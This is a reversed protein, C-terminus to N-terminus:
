CNRADFWSVELSDGIVGKVINKELYTKIDKNMESHEEKTHLWIELRFGLFSFKKHKQNIRVGAIGKEIHPVTGKMLDFVLTKWVQQVADLNQKLDIRYEAGGKNQEDEWKPQIGFKFIQICDVIYKM